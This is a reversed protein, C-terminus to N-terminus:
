IGQQNLLFALHCPINPLEFQQVWIPGGQRNECCPGVDANLGRTTLTSVIGQAVVRGDGFITFNCDLQFGM